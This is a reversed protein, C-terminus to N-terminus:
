RLDHSQEPQSGDRGGADNRVADDVVDKVESDCNRSENVLAFAGLQVVFEDFLAFALGIILWKTAESVNPLPVRRTVPGFTRGIVAFTYDPNKILRFASALLNPM